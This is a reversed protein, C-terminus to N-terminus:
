WRTARQIDDIRMDLIGSKEMRDKTAKLTEVTAEAQKIKEDINQRLTIDLRRASGILGSGAQTQAAEPYNDAEIM